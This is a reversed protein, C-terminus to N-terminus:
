SIRSECIELSLVDGKGNFVGGYFIFNNADSNINVSPRVRKACAVGGTLQVSLMGHSTLRHLIRYRASTKLPLIRGLQMRPWRAAQSLSISRTAAPRM